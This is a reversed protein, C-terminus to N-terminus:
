DQTPMDGPRRGQHISRTQIVGTMGYEVVRAGRKPVVLATCRGDSLAFGEMDRWRTKAVTPEAFSCGTLTVLGLAAYYIRSRTFSSTAGMM